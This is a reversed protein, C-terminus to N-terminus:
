RRRCPTRDPVDINARDIGEEALLPALERVIENALRAEPPDAAGGATTGPPAPAPRAHTPDECAVAAAAVTEPWV